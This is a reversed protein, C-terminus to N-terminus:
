RGRGGFASVYRVRISMEGISASVYRRAGVPKRSQHQASIARKMCTDYKLRMVRYVCYAYRNHNRPSRAATSDPILGILVAVGVSSLTTQPEDLLTAVVHRSPLVDGVHKGLRASKATRDNASVARVRVDPLLIVDYTHCCVSVNDRRDRWAAAACCLPPLTPTRAPMALRM